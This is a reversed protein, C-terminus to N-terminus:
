VTKQAGGHRGDTADWGVRCKQWWKTGELARLAEWLRILTPMLVIPRESWVNKPDSLVDDHLGAAAM